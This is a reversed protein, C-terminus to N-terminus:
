SPGAGLRGRATTARSASCSVPGHAMEYVALQDLDPGSRSQSHASRRAWPGLRPALMDEEFPEKWTTRVTLVMALVLLREQSVLTSLGNLLGGTQERVWADVADRDTLVGVSEAPM